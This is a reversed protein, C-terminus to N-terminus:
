VQAPMAPDAMAGTVSSNMCSQHSARRKEAGRHEAARQHHQQL